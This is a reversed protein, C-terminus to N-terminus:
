WSVLRRIWSSKQKKKRGLLQKVKDLQNPNEFPVINGKQLKYPQEQNIEKSLVSKEVYGQQSSVGSVTNVKNSIQEQKSIRERRLRGAQLISRFVKKFSSAIFDESEFAYGKEFLSRVQPNSPIPPLLLFPFKFTRSDFPNSKLEDNIVQSPCILLDPLTEPKALSQLNEEVFINTADIEIMSVSTPIIILDFEKIFEASMSKTWTLDCVLIDSGQLNKRIVNRMGIYWRQATFDNILHHKVEVNEPKLAKLWSSASAHPDCDLLLTKKKLVRGCYASFNASLTSKGVGGKQSVVLIKLCITESKQFNNEDMKQSNSDGHFSHIM